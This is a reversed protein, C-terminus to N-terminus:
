TMLCITVLLFPSLVALARQVCKVPAFAINSSLCACPPLLSHAPPLLEGLAQLPVQEGQSHHSLPVKVENMHCQSFSDRVWGHVPMCAVNGSFQLIVKGFFSASVVPSSLLKSSSLLCVKSPGARSRVERPETQQPM